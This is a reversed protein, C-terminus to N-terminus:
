PNLAEQSCGAGIHAKTKDEGEWQQGGQDQGTGHDLNLPHLPSNQLFPLAFLHEFRDQAGSGM